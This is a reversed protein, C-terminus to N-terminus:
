LDSPALVEEPSDPAVEAPAEAPDVTYGAAMLGEVSDSHTLKNGNADYVVYVLVPSSDRTDRLEEYYSVRSGDPATGNGVKDDPIM